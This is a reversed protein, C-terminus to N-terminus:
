KENRCICITYENSNVKPQEHWEHIINKHIIVCNVILNIQLRKLAQTITEGDTETPQEYAGVIINKCGLAMELPIVINNLVVYVNYREHSFGLSGTVFYEKVSPYYLYNTSILIEYNENATKKIFEKAINLTSM